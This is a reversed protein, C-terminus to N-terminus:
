TTKCYYDSVASPIIFWLVIMFVSSLHNDIVNNDEIRIEDVLPFSSRERYNNKISNM